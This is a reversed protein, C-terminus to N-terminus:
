VTSVSRSIVFNGRNYRESSPSSSDRELKWRNKEAICTASDIINWRRGPPPLSSIGLSALSGRITRLPKREPPAIAGFANRFHLSAPNEGEKERLSPDINFLIALIALFIKFLLKKALSSRINFNYKKKWVIPFLLVRLIITLMRKGKRYFVRITLFNM